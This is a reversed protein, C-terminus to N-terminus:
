KNINMKICIKAVQYSKVLVLKNLHYDILKLIPKLNEKFVAASTLVRCLDETHKIYSKVILSVLYKHYLIPAIFFIKSCCVQM